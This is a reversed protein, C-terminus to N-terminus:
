NLKIILEKKVDTATTIKVIYSGGPFASLDISKATDTTSYIMKASMDFIELRTILETSEVNLNNRVPNPFCRISFDDVVANKISTSRNISKWEYEKWNNGSVKNKFEEGDANLMLDTDTTTVHLFVDEGFGIEGPVGFELTKLAMCFEAAWDGMNTVNPLEMDTLTPCVGFANDAVDTLTNASVFSNVTRGAPYSILSSKAANFLVGDEATFHENGKDVSIKRLNVCGLFPNLGVNVLTAPLNVEHLGSNYFAFSGITTVASLDVTSLGRCARFAWDAVCTVNPASFNRLWETGTYCAYFCGNPITDTQESLEISQLNRFNGSGSNNNLNKLLYLDTKDNNGTITIHTIQSAETRNTKAWVIAEAATSFERSSNQAQVVGHAMVFALLLVINPIKHFCIMFLRYFNRTISESM